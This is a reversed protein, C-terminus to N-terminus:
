GECDPCQKRIKQIAKLCFRTTDYFDSNIDDYRSMFRYNSNLDNGLFFHEYHALIVHKSTDFRSLLREFGEFYEKHEKDADSLKLMNLRASLYGRFRKNDEVEIVTKAKKM